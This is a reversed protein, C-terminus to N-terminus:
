AGKIQGMPGTIGACAPTIGCRDRGNERNSRLERVRPPSGVVLKFSADDFPYNGCM